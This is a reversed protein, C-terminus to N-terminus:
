SVLVRFDCAQNSAYLSTYRTVATMSKSRAGHASRSLRACTSVLAAIPRSYCGEDDGDSNQMLRHTRTRSPRRGLDDFRRFLTNGRGMFCDAGNSTQAEVQVGSPALRLAM